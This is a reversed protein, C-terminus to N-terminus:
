ESAMKSLPDVNDEQKIKSESLLKILKALNEKETSDGNEKQGCRVKGLWMLMTINGQLAKQLQTAEILMVGTSRLREAYETYEMGKDSRVRAHLKDVSFGLSKAINEQTCGAKLYLDVKEWDIPGPTRAM